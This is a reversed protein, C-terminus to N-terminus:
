QMNANNWQDFIVQLLDQKYVIASIWINIATDVIARDDYVFEKKQMIIEMVQFLDRQLDRLDVQHLLAEGTEGTM